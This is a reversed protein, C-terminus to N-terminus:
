SASPHDRREMLIGKARETVARPSRVRSTTTSPSGDFCSTSRAKSDRPDEVSTIYAFIGRKAAERIFLPDKVGLIAIVPCAAEHMITGIGALAESNGEGVVVVAVDPRETATAAAVRAPDEELIVQHGLSAIADAVEHRRSEHGGVVLIRLPNLPPDMTSM